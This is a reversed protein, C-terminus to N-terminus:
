KSLKTFHPSLRILFIVFDSSGGTDFFFSKCGEVRVRRFSFVKRFPYPGGLSVRETVGFLTMIDNKTGNKYIRNVHQPKFVCVFCINLFCLM